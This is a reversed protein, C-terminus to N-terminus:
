SNRTVQQVHDLFQRSLFEYSHRSTAYERGLEGMHRRKPISANMLSEVAGVLAEVDEPGISIGCGSERVIDNPADVAHIVPKGAMLYDCLKNPSIGYRYIPMKAWGIYCADAWSLLSPIQSKSVASHLYVNSLGLSKIKETLRVREAGDGVLVFAVPSELMRAAADLLHTLANSIRFSGTYMVIFKGSEKLERLLDEIGPEQLSVASAWEKLDFGNPVYAFKSRAMGHDEFHVCANPLTSIVVDSKRLASNEAWQLAMVIPNFRSLKGLEVLTLPWIDRVEYVLRAGTSRAIRQAILNDFVFVSASIVLDPRFRHVIRRRFVSLILLFALVNLVRAIGNGHYRPGALWIYQIGDIVEESVLHPCNPQVRRTHSFSSAVITVRHGQRVWERSMYYPRYGMGLDPSGAHHNILFINM